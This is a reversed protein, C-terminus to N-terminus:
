EFKTAPERLTEAATPLTFYFTAGRGDNATAWLQGGHSEVISRSIALGMGSGQTKTTFFASFIQDMTETPLGVGTDSVSFQLQSNQLESKVTLEGGSDQMAEISNLMLNMFVQQLQVRDVMIKPVEASLDTRMAISSRTAEGKLLTLIEHIIGNADVLERQPPSKKYFSRIRDIIEAARNGYKDIRTATALAKEINPPDHALWEICSNACTIAAAIPQKIEHALSAAMEGLMSVRNIHALEAELQRLKEHEQEACKHDTIDTSSGLFQVSDGTASLVPHGVTRIWKVIGGPLVIRFTVDYDIKEVISREITNKWALRDEPHVLDLRKEWNPAGDAPDFGFIRYWEESLHVVNRDSVRWAWSGTHTLKQAEGLYFESRKLAEAASAESAASRKALEHNVSELEDRANRLDEEVRRRVRAFWSVLLTFLAFIVFYPIESAAIYLTYLPPVFFYDFALSCLVVALVGPGPGAYWSSIASACIFLPVTADRFGFYDLLLGAGVAVAVSLVAFWYRQLRRWRLLGTSQRAASDTSALPLPNMRSGVASTPIGYPRSDLDSDDMSM